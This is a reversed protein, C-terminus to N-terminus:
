NKYSKMIKYYDNTLYEIYSKKRKKDIIDIFSHNGYKDNKDYSIYTINKADNSSKKIANFFAERREDHYYLEIEIKFVKDLHDLFVKVVKISDEMTDNDFINKESTICISNHCRFNQEFLYNPDKNLLHEFVGSLLFVPYMTLLILFKKM